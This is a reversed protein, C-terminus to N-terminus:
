YTRFWIQWSNAHKTRMDQFSLYYFKTERFTRFMLVKSSTSVRYANRNLVWSLKVYPTMRAKKKDLSIIEWSTASINRDNEIGNLLIQQKSWAKRFRDIKEKFRRIHPVFQLVIGLPFHDATMPYVNEHFMKTAKDAEERNVWIHLAKVVEKNGTENRNTSVAINQYKLAVNINYLGWLEEELKKSEIRRFSWLLWGINTTNECQLTQFYIGHRNNSLWLQIDNMIDGFQRTHKIRMDAYASGENKPMIRNFFRTIGSQHKPINSADIEAYQQQEKWPIVKVIPDSERLTTLIEVLHRHLKQLNNEPETANTINVRLEVRTFLYKGRKTSKNPRTGSNNNGPNKTIRLDGPAVPYKKPPKNNQKQVSDQGEDIKTLTRDHVPITSLLEIDMQESNNTQTTTNSQTTNCAEESIIATKDQTTLFIRKFSLYTKNM